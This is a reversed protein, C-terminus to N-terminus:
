LGDNIVKNKKKIQSRILPILLLVIYFGSTIILGLQFGPTEFQLTIKGTITKDNMLISLYGEYSIIELNSTYDISASNNGSFQAKWGDYFASLVYIQNTQIMDSVAITITDRGQKKTVLGTINNSITNIYFAFPLEKTNQYVTYNNKSFQFEKLVVLHSRMLEENMSIFYKYLNDRTKNMILHERISPYYHGFLNWGHYGSLLMLGVDIAVQQKIKNIGVYFMSQDISFLYDAIEQMEAYEPETPVNGNKGHSILLDSVVLQSITLSLVLAIILFDTTYKKRNIGSKNTNIPKIKDDSKKTGYEVTLQKILKYTIIVVFILIILAEFKEFNGNARIDNNQYTALVSPFGEVGNEFMILLGLLSLLLLFKWLDLTKERNEIMYEIGSACLGITGLVLFPMSRSPVRISELFPAIEYLLRVHWIQSIWMISIVSIIAFFKNRKHIGQIIGILALILIVYGIEANFEHPAPGQFGGEGLLYVMIRSPRARGRSTEIKRGTEYLSFNYIPILRVASSLIIMALYALSYYLNQGNIRFRERDRFYFYKFGFVIMITWILIQISLKADIVDASISENSVFFWPILPAFFIILISYLDLNKLENFLYYGCVGATLILLLMFINTGGAYLIQAMALSSYLFYKLKKEEFGFYLNFLVIPIWFY